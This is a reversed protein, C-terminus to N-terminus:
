WTERAEEYHERLKALQNVHRQKFEDSRMKPKTWIPDVCPVDSRVMFAWSRGQVCSNGSITCSNLASGASVTPFDSLTGLTVMSDYIRARDNITVGSVTSNEIHSAYDSSEWGGTLTLISPTTSESKVIAGAGAYLTGSVKTGAGTISSGSAFIIGLRYPSSVPIGELEVSGLQGDVSVSGTLKADQVDAAGVMLNVTVSPLYGTGEHVASDNSVTTNEMNRHLYFLGTFDNEGKFVGQMYSHLESSALDSDFGLYTGENEITSNQVHIAHKIKAKGEITTNTIFLPAHESADIELLGEAESDEPTFVGNSIVLADGEVDKGTIKMPGIFTNATGQIYVKSIIEPYGTAVLNFIKTRKAYSLTNLIKVKEGTKIKALNDIDVSNMDVYGQIEFGSKLVVDSWTGNVELLTRDKSASPAVITVNTMSLAPVDKSASFLRLDMDGSLNVNHLEVNDGCISVTPAIYSAGTVKVGASIPVLEGSTGPNKHYTWPLIKGDDDRCLKDEDVVVDATKCGGNEPDYAVLHLFRNEFALKSREFEDVKISKAVEGVRGVQVATSAEFVADSVTRWVM